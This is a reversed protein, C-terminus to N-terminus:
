PLVNFFERVPAPKIALKTSIGSPSSYLVIFVAM